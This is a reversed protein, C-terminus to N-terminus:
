CMEVFDIVRRVCEALSGLITEKGKANANHYATIQRANRWECATIIHTRLVYWRALFPQSFSLAFRELYCAYMPLFFDEETCIALSIYINAQVYLRVHM